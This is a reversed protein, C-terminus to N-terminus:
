RWYFLKRRRKKRNPQQIVMLFSISVIYIFIDFLTM